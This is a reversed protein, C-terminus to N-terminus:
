SDRIFVGDVQLMENKARDSFAETLAICRFGLATIRQYLTIFDIGGTYLPALSMEVAILRTAALTAAAGDLVAGEFGQTDIKM